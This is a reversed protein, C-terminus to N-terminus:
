LLKSAKIELKMKRDIPEGNLYIKIEHPALTVSTHTAIYEIVAKKIDTESLEFNM